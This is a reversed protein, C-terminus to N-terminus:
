YSAPMGTVEFHPNYGDVWNYHASIYYRDNQYDWIVRTAAGGGSFEIYACNPMGFDQAYRQWALRVRETKTNATGWFIERYFIRRLKAASQAPSTDVQTEADSAAAANGHAAVLVDGFHRREGAPGGQMAQGAALIAAYLAADQTVAATVPLWAANNTHPSRITDMGTNARATSGWAVGIYNQMDNLAGNKAIVADSRATVAGAAGPSAVALSAGSITNATGKARSRVVGAGTLIQRFHAKDPDGARTPAHQGLAYILDGVLLRLRGVAPAHGPCIAAIIADAMAPLDAQDAVNANIFAFTFNGAAPNNRALQLETWFPTGALANRVATFEVGTFTSHIDAGAVPDYDVPTVRFLGQLVSPPRGKNMLRGLGRIEKSRESNAALDQLRRQAAAQPGAHGWGGSV